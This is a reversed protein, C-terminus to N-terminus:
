NDNTTIHAPTWNDVLRNLLRVGFGTGGKPVTASAKDSWAKGAIDLHAWPTKSVFRELFCAATISGGYPGGINKMDAIHSKLMKDYAKGMPMRWLKEETAMGAQTLQAALEDSNSFLGGYEKGLSVIIAGTLTALNVMMAPEFRTETYHLADALVLRGEADTNIVEITKGSMATVVDGPRQANGDPMNEVLGIVGVVNRKVKRGAIAAMAGTVAAAGGMDWKMDEMGKAPKLSIGGTDFTVGKGVLALPAEDKGGRWNMVVMRSERRSGQGVGLLAGMGLAEMDAEDLVEVELGLSSLSACRDAFAEPYLKNAPEFILDRALAVGKALAQRDALVRDDETIFENSVVLQVSAEVSDTETFYQEFHYAALEVGFIIDGAVEDAFKHPPLWGRKQPTAALATFLKGGVTEAHIGAKVTEGVGVLLYTGEDLYLSLSTGKKGTFQASAMKAIVQAAVDKDLTPIIVSDESILCITICDGKPADNSFSLKLKSTM